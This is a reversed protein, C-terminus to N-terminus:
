CVIKTNRRFPQSRHQNVPMRRPKFMRLYLRGAQTTSVGESFELTDTSPDCDTSPITATFRYDGESTRDIGVRVPSQSQHQGVHPAGSTTLDNRAGEHELLGAIVGATTLHYQVARVEHWTTAAITALILGLIIYCINISILFFFPVMPVRAVLTQKRQQAVTVSHRQVSGAGSSLVTAGLIDGFRDAFDKADTALLAAMNMGARINDYGFSTAAIGSAFLNTVSSNSVVSKTIYRQGARSAYEIDLVTVNCLFIATVVYRPAVLEPDNRLPSNLPLADATAAAVYFPNQVGYYQNQDDSDSLDSTRFVETLLSQNDMDSGEAYFPGNSCNFTINGNNALNCARSITGCQTSVAYTSAIFDYSSVVDAPVPSLYSLDSDPMPLVSISTSQNNITEITPAPDIFVLLESTGNM